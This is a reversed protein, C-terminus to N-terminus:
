PSRRGTKRTVYERGSRMAERVPSRATASAEEAIGRGILLSAQNAPMDPIVHGVPWIKWAKKLRIATM